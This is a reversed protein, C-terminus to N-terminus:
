LHLRVSLAKGSIDFRDLLGITFLARDVARDLSNAADLADTGALRAAVTVVDFVEPTVSVVYGDGLARALAARDGPSLTGGLYTVQLLARFHRPM